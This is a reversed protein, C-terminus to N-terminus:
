WYAYEDSSAFDDFDDFDEDDHPRGQSQHRGEDAAERICQKSEDDLIDPEFHGDGNNEISSRLNYPYFSVRKSFVSGEVCHPVVRFGHSQQFALWGLSPFVIDMSYKGTSSSRERDGPAVEGRPLDKAVFPKLPISYSNKSSRGMLASIREVHSPPITARGPAESIPVVRVALSKHLFAQVTVSDGKEVGVLDVRALVCPEEKVQNEGEKGKDDDQNMWPAEVLVSHGERLQLERGDERTPIPIAEPRTLPEMLHPPFISYQVARPNIIGPTDWLAHGALLLRFVFSFVTSILIHFLFYLSTTGSMSANVGKFELKGPKVFCPIRVAQLTTGPLHSGTINIKDIINLRRASKKGKMFMASAIISSMRQVLTSKGVNASGLVFVDKGQLNGLLAGSLGIVGSNEKASVAFVHSFQMGSMKEVRKSLNRIDFDTTRPLLDIKNLVLWVPVRGISRRLNKVASHEADTSDVVMLAIGFRRRSVIHQLQDRFVEPSVDTLADYAKWLNGKQLAKCRDCLFNSQSADTDSPDFWRAKKAQKRSRSLDVADRGTVFGAEGGQGGSSPALVEAGCGSCLRSGKQGSGGSAKAAIRGAAGPARQKAVVKGPKKSGGSEKAAIRGAGGPVRTQCSSQWTEQLRGIRERCDPRRRGRSSKKNQKKHWSIEQLRGIREQWCDPRCRRGPVRKTTKKKTSAFYRCSVAEHIISSPSPPTTPFCCTRRFRLASHLWPLPPLGRQQAVATRQQVVAM